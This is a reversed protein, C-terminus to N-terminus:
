STGGAPPIKDIESGQRQMDRQGLYRPRTRQKWWFWRIINDKMEAISLPALPSMYPVGFSRLSCLHVMLIFIGVQIGFLGFASGIVTFGFRLIRMTIAMSFVPATFSAIATLAIVIVVAPGVIGARIAADGLILAGVISIAPGIAPPLRLGAERLLEFLIDLILVEAVVPFPVGERAATIRMVLSTPLVEPHYTLAAVYLGPLLLSIGIAMMRLIRVLSGIPVKEYYDDPTQLLSAMEAPVILVFPTGDTFIAVRGELLGAAVKDPRETRLALPFLSLPQDEIFEEIYGSELIGDIEIRDLRTRVEEVMGEDALGKIFAIDVSTQTLAGIERSEFWLHPTKIRRRILATNLRLSEVFADQPGRLSIESEPKSVQRFVDGSIVEALIATEQGDIILCVSGSALGKFLTVLDSSTSVETTTVLQELVNNTTKKLKKLTDTKLTELILNRMIDQLINDTILGEYYILAANKEGGLRFRRVTMDVTRGTIIGIKELNAELSAELSEGQLADHRGGLDLDDHWANKQGWMTGLMAKIFEM